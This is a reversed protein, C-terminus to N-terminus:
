SPDAKRAMPGHSSSQSSSRPYLQDHDRGTLTELVERTEPAVDNKDGGARLRELEASLIGHTRPTIHFRLSVLFGLVVFVLPMAFFVFRLGAITEPSQTVVADGTSEVYGILHLALGIAPTALLGQVFKRILTMAGAYMGSRVEGTIMEDVDIVSPLIAWPMMVAASLGAGIVACVAMITLTSSAGSLFYSLVMGAGFIALGLRLAAGKGRRNAIVVYLPITLIQAGMLGTMAQTLVERGINWKVYYQVLILLTDMATYACIYMALHVRFSRNGLLSLSGGLASKLSFRERTEQGARRDHDPSRPSPPDPEWTGLFVLIWPLAYLLGFVVALWFYGEARTEAGDRIMPGVTGALAASILSFISRAATLRTRARYDTSMEANLASYPVMVMTFVTSFVLYALGYYLAKAYVGDWPVTLWLLYFSLAIPAIAILFYVRRRGLRSRTRDSIYGMLPDSVADWIKGAGIVATGLWAPLGVEETLFFLFFMSILLFSGGGFIDGMGYAILNRLKVPRERSM